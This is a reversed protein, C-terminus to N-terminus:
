EGEIHALVESWETFWTIEPISEAELSLNHPRRRLFTRHGAEVGSVAHKYNDEIWIGPPFGNLASVKSHGLDICHISDFVAGFERLLNLERREVTEPDTSCATLVHLSHNRALQAVAHRAGVVPELFAFHHSANFDKILVLAEDDSVGLWETMRWSGPGAEAPNLGRESMCFYRFRKVWDLLVDDCDLIINM